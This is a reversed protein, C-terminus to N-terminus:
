KETGEKEPPPSFVIEQLDIDQAELFGEEKLEKILKVRKKLRQVRVHDQWMGFYEGFPGMAPQGVLDVLKLKWDNENKPSM